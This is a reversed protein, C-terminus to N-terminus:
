RAEKKQRVGNLFKVMCIRNGKPNYQVEDMLQHILYVGRGRNRLLNNGKTCDALTKPDFGSGQDEVTLRVERGSYEATLRVKLNKKLESGYKMANILSEELCLKIDFVHADSLGLPKLFQLVKSSAKRVLSLDSSVRFEKKTYNEKM